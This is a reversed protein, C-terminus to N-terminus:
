VDRLIIIRISDLTKGFERECRGEKPFVYFIHFFEEFIRYERVPSFFINKSMRTFEVMADRRSVSDPSNWLSSKIVKLGFYTEVVAMFHAWKCVFLRCFRCPFELYVYVPKINGKQHVSFTIIRTYTNYALLSYSAM